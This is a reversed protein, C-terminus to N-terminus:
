ALDTPSKEVPGSGTAALQVLAKGAAAFSAAINEPTLAQALEAEAAQEAEQIGSGAPLGAVAGRLREFLKALNLPTAELLGDWTPTTPM